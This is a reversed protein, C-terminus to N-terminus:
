PGFDLHAHDRSLTNYLYSPAPWPYLVLYKMDASAAGSSRASFRRDEVFFEFSFGDSSDNSLSTYVIRSFTRRTKLSKSSMRSASPSFAVFLTM